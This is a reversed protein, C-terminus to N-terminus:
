AAGRTRRRGSASPADEPVPDEAKHGTLSLFVDDLTPERVNLTVPELHAHDLARVVDLVVKAGDDVKLEVVTSSSGVDCLGIRALETQARQATAPEQFGVEVITAGMTAKLESSTGEAIVRGHDIVVINDALRDAEELYQTTLLLTTGERVLDEIVGWLDQRGSPDLGTTPEDLFLVPPRHLLAAALDLRRRMGGSYTRVPRDAADSLAFRELLQTARDLVVPKSLHSLRGIMRLNERGTLNEDVAAYQGALGISERVAQTDRTVDLGLVEARGSDPALITTLVRVSTTKGAGNPGLLGLVTGTPVSFSVGDLAVVSGFEKRLDEVIIADAM